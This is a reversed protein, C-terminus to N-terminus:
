CVYKAGIFKNKEQIIIIIEREPKIGFLTTKSSASFGSEDLHGVRNYHSSVDRRLVRVSKIKYFSDGSKIVILTNGLYPNQSNVPFAFGSIEINGDRVRCVGVSFKVGSFEVLPIVDNIKVPKNFSVFSSATILASASALIFFLIGAMKKM